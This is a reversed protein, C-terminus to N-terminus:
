RRSRMRFRNCAMACLSPTPSFLSCNIVLFDVERPKIGTQEFLTEMCGCIVLEAEHRTAAMTEKAHVGKKRCGSLGPPWATAEGTGSNSLVKTMFELDADAFSGTKELKGVNRCVDIIESQTLKWSAPPEFLAFDLLYVSRKRRLLLAIVMILFSPGMWAMTEFLATCADGVPMRALEAALVGQSITGGVDYIKGYLHIALQTFLVLGALRVVGDVYRERFVALMDRARALWVIYLSPDFNLARETVSGPSPPVQPSPPPLNDHSNARRVPSPRRNRLSGTM